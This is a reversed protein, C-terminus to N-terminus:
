SRSATNELQDYDTTERIQDREQFWALDFSLDVSTPFAETSPCNTGFAEVRRRLTEQTMRLRQLTVPGCGHPIALGYLDLALLEGVTAIGLRRMATRVRRDLSLEEVDTQLVADREHGEGDAMLLTKCIMDRASKLSAYTKVSYGRLLLIPRLDHSIFDRITTIGMQALATRERRKFALEDITTDLTLM